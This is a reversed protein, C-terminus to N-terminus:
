LVLDGPESGPVTRRAAEIGATASRARRRRQPAPASASHRSDAERGIHQTKIPVKSNDTTLM